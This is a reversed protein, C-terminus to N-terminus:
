PSGYDIRKRRLDIQRKYVECETSSSSHNTDVKKEYKENAMKCNVCSETTKVCDESKHEAGCKACCLKSTCDKAKHYFGWCNFCREVEVCETAICREWLISLRRAALIERFTAPDTELKFGHMSKDKNSFTHVVKVISNESFIKPNKERLSTEIQQATYSERLGFARIKPLIKDPISVLYNVGLGAAADAKLKAVEAKSKMEIAIGGNAINKVRNIERGSSDVNKSIDAFTRNNLQNEDIPKIIVVHNTKIAKKKKKNEKQGCNEKLTEKMVDAFSKAQINNSSVVLENSKHPEAPLAFLDIKELLTLHINKIESLEKALNQKEDMLKNINANIVAISMESRTMLAALENVKVILDNCIIELTSNDGFFSGGDTRKRKGFSFAKSNGAPNKINENHLNDIPIGATSTQRTVRVATLPAATADISMVNANANINAPIVLPCPTSPPTRKLKPMVNAGFCFGFCVM